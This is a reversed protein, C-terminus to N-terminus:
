LVTMKLAPYWPPLFIGQTYFSCCNPNRLIFDMPCGLGGYSFKNLLEDLLGGTRFSSPLKKRPVFSKLVFKLFAVKLIHM